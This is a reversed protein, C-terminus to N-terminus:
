DVQGSADQLVRDALSSIESTDLGNRGQKRTATFQQPNSTRNVNKEIQSKKSLYNRLHSLWESWHIHEKGQLRCNAHFEEIMAETLNPIKCLQELDNRNRKEADTFIKAAFAYHVDVVINENKDKTNHLRYSESGSLSGTHSYSLSGTHSDNKCHIGILRYETVIGKTGSKFDILEVQKLKNRYKILSKEQVSLHGCCFSNSLNFPNKWHLRNCRHLLFLYFDGEAASIIAQERLDWYQNLLEIYNV